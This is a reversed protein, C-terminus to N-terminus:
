DGPEGHQTCAIPCRGDLECPQTHLLLKTRESIATIGPGRQKLPSVPFFVGEPMLPPFIRRRLQTQGGERAGWSECSREIGAEVRLPLLTPQSCLILVNCLSDETSDEQPGLFPKKNRKNRIQLCGGGLLPFHNLPWSRCRSALRPRPFSAPSLASDRGSVANPIRPM